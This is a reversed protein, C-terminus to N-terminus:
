SKRSRTVTESKEVLLLMGESSKVVVVDGNFLPEASRIKWYTDGIIVKGEGAPLEESITVRQGILQAARDNLKGHDTQQNFGRFLKWYLVTFLIANFALIIFQFDWSLGPWFFSIVSQVFCAIAIGILFGGAGLTEAILLAVALVLWQWPEITAYWPLSENANLIAYEAKNM